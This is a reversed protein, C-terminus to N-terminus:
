PRKQWTLLNTKRCWWLAPLFSTCHGNQTSNYVYQDVLAPFKKLCMFPRPTNRCPLKNEPVKEECKVQNGKKHLKYRNSKLRIKNKVSKSFHWEDQAIWASNGQSKRVAHVIRTSCTPTAAAVVFSCKILASWFMPATRSYLQNVLSNVLPILSHLQYPLSPRDYYM